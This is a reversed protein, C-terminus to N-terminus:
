PTTLKFELTYLTSSYSSGYTNIELTHMGENLYFPNLIEIKNLSYSEQDLYYVFENNLKLWSTYSHSPVGSHTVNIVKLINGEEIEFEIIPSESSININRVGVLEMNKTEQSFLLSPIFILIYILNKM